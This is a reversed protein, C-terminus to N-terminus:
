IGMLANKMQYVPQLAYQKNAQDIIQWLIQTIM